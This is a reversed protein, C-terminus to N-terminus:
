QVTAKAAKRKELIKKVQKYPTYLTIEKDHLRNKVTKSANEDAHMSGCQQCIFKEQTKRNGLCGCKHCEQSTYAPNVYEYAIGNVDCKFLLREDIYGKIWRSLKRKIHKPMKEDWSVFALNEIGIISPREKQILCNLEHNIFSKVTEEHKHKNKKYKKKGLNNVRIREAKETDGQEELTRVMAYYPNRKQNVKHLRETEESLLTNLGEGYHTGSSSILMTKYGKDVGIENQGKWNKTEKSTVMHALTFVGQDYTVRINKKYVNQDSCQLRIRNNKIHTSIEIYTVGDEQVYKYMDADLQFTSSYTYPTKGRYRRAYRHILSHVYNERVELKQISKPRVISERILISGFLKPASCVYRIYNKEDETLNENEKAVEKIKNCTNSWLSKLNSVVDELTIKWFRAPLKFQEVLEKNKVWENRVAKGDQLRPYSHIGALRSFMYNKANRIRETLKEIITEDAQNAYMARQKVTRKVRKKMFPKNKKKAM